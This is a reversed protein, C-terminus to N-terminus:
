WKNWSRLYYAPSFIQKQTLLRRHRHMLSGPEQALVANDSSIESLSFSSAPADLPLMM